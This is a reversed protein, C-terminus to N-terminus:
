CNISVSNIEESSLCEKLVNCYPSYDLKTNVSFGELVYESPLVFMKKSQHAKKIKSCTLDNTTKEFTDWDAFKVAFGAKNNYDCPDKAEVVFHGKNTKVINYSVTNQGDVVQVCIHAKNIKTYFENDVLSKEIQEKIANSLQQEDPFYIAKGTTVGRLILLVGIILLISFVAIFIVKNKDMSKTQGQYKKYNHNMTEKYANNIQHEQWGANLLNKKVHSYKKGSKIHKTIYNKIESNVPGNKKQTMYRIAFIAIVLALLVFFLTILFQTFDKEKEVDEEIVTLDTETTDLEEQLGALGVSLQNTNEQFDSEIQTQLSRINSLETKLTNINQQLTVIDKEITSVKLETSASKNELKGIEVQLLALEGTAIKTKNEITQNPEEFDDFFGQDGFPDDPFLDSGPINPTGENWFCESFDTNCYCIGGVEKIVTECGICDQDTTCSDGIFTGPIEVAFVSISLLLFVGVFLVLTKNKM